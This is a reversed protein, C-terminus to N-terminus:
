AAIEVVREIMRLVNRSRDVADLRDLSCTHALDVSHALRVEVDCRMDKAAVWANNLQAQSEVELQRQLNRTRTKHPASPFPQGRKKDKGQPLSRTAKKSGSSLFGWTRHSPSVSKLLLCTRSQAM